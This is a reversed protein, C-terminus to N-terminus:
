FLCFNFHDLCPLLFATVLASSGASPPYTSFLLFRGTGEPSQSRCSNWFVATLPVWNQKFCILCCGMALLRHSQAANGEWYCLKRRSFLVAIPKFLLWSGPFALRAKSHFVCVNLKGMYVILWNKIVLVPVIVLIEKLVLSASIYHWNHSIYYM